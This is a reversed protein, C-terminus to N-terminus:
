INIYTEHTCSTLLLGASGNYETAVNNQWIRCILHLTESENMCFQDKLKVSYPGETQPCTTQYIKYQETNNNKQPPPGRVVTPINFQVIYCLDWTQYQVPAVGFQILDSWILCSCDKKYTYTYINQIYQQNEPSNVQLLSGPSQSEGASVCPLAKWKNIMVYHWSWGVGVSENISYMWYM